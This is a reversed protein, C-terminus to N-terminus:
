NIGDDIRWRSIERREYSRQVRRFASAAPYCYNRSPRNPIARHAASMPLHSM